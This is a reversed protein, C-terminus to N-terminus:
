FRIELGSTKSPPASSGSTAVGIVFGTIVAGGAIAVWFWWQKYFPGEDRRPAAPAPRPSPRPAPAAASPARTPLPQQWSQPLSAEHPPEEPAVRRHPAPTRPGGSEEAGAAPRSAPAPQAPASAPPPPPPPNKELEEYPDKPVGAAIRKQLEAIKAQVARRNQAEPKGVLYRRFAAIAAELQGLKEHCRGINYDLLPSGQIAAAAQFSTIAERYKGADYHQKGRAFHAKALETDAARAPASTLVILVVAVLHKMISV